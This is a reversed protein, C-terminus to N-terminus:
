QLWSEDEPTSDHCMWHDKRNHRCVKIGTGDSENNNVSFALVSRHM